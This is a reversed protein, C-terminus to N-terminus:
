YCTYFPLDQCILLECESFEHRPDIKIGKGYSNNEKKMPFHLSNEMKVAIERRLNHIQFRFAFRWRM